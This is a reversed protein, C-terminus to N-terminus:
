YAEEEDFDYFEDCRAWANGHKDAGFELMYEQGPYEANKCYMNVQQVIVWFLDNAFFRGHKEYKKFAKRYGIRLRALCAKLYEDRLISLKPNGLEESDLEGPIQELTCNIIEKFDEDAECKRTRPAKSVHHGYFHDRFMRSLDFAVSEHVSYMSGRGDRSLEGHQGRVYWLGGLAELEDDITGIRKAGNQHELIDHAILLGENAANTDDNQPMDALILGIIGTTNDEICKLKIRQTKM